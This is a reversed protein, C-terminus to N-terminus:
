GIFYLRYLTPLTRYIIPCSYQKQLMRYIIPIVIDSRYGVSNVIYHM